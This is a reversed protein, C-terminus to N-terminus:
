KKHVWNDIYDGKIWYGEQAMNLMQYDGASNGYAFAYDFNLDHETLYQNIRNVKEQAYCNRTALKGTLKSQVVEVETAIVADIKHLKCWHRLYIALNASVLIIKNHHERHWEVKAYVVPNIYKHLKTLAFNKAKADIYNYEKGSLLRILTLQKAQENTLNKCLYRMAICILYPLNKIITFNGVTYRLFPMLTDRYTITGDFDFYAVIKKDSNTM